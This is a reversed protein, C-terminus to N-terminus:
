HYLHYPDELYNLLNGKKISSLNALEHTTADGKALSNMEWLEQHKDCFVLTTLITLLIIAVKGRDILEM